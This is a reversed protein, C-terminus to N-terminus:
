VLKRISYKLLSVYSKIVLIIKKVYNMDINLKIFATLYQFSYIVCDISSINRSEMSYHQLIKKNKMINKYDITSSFLGQRFVKDALKVKEKKKLPLLYIHTMYYCFEKIRQNPLFFVNETNYTKTKVISAAEETETTILPINIIMGNGRSALEANILEINFVFYKDETFIKTLINLNKYKDTKYFSGSPHKSLYALHIVADFGAYYRNYKVDSTINLNCYGVDIDMNKKLICVFDELKKVDIFDKDLCLLSYMGKAYQLNRFGNLLGGINKENSYVFLRKDKIESLINLTNDTSCNDLIVIEIDQLPSM